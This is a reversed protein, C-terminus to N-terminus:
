FPIQNANFIHISYQNKDGRRYGGENIGWKMTLLPPVTSYFFNKFFILFFFVGM